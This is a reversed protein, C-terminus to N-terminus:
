GSSNGRSERLIGEYLTIYKQTQVRLDFHEEAYSRSSIRLSSVRDEEILSAQIAKALSAATTQPAIVGTRGEIVLEPMPGIDFAIVPTGCALSELATQPQGDALTTALFADAAAYIRAQQEADRVYGFHRVRQLTEPHSWGEEGGMTILWPPNESNAQIEELAQYALHYGKRYNGKGGAAWLLIKADTDLGLQRRTEARNRPKYVELNVGNSIINISRANQLISESVQDRMWRTTVIVHLCSRSYIDRKARWVRRTGDLITPKPEVIQQGQRTLLPCCYCGTKWRQCDYPYACHGTVAWLDPMRWVVPKGASLAPISWLNFYGGFLNRLDIIDAWRYLETDSIRLNNQNAWPHIGIYRELQNGLRSKIRNGLTSFGAVEDWILHVLPDEPHTSRGVLFRSQHGQEVLAQHLRQMARAAGGTHSTANIHLVRM